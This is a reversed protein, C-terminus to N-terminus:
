AYKKFIYLGSIHKKKKLPPANLMNRYVIWSFLTSERWQAIPILLLYNWSIEAHMPEYEWINASMVTFIFVADFCCVGRPTNQDNLHILLQIVWCQLFVNQQSIHLPPAILLLVLLLDILFYMRGPTCGPAHIYSLITRRWM